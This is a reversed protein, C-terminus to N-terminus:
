SNKAKSPQKMLLDYCTGCVLVTETQATPSTAGFVSKSVKQNCCKSCFNNGCHRCYYRRKLISAFSVKCKFCSENAIHQRRKKMELLREVMGPKNSAPLKNEDYDELDLNSIDCERDSTDDTDRSFGPNTQDESTVDKKQYHDGSDQKIQVSKVGNLTEYAKKLYKIIVSFVEEHALFFWNIILIFIGRTPLVVLSLLFVCVEVHFRLSSLTIEWKLIRYFHTLYENCKQVFDYMQIVSYRFQKVTELTTSEDVIVDEDDPVPSTVPLIKDFMGTHLQVLCLTAIAIVLLSILAFVAGKSLFISRLDELAYLVFAFPEILKSFREVEAVFTALDVRNNGTSHSTNNMMESKVPKDNSSVADEDM